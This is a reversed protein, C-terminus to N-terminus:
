NGMKGAPLATVRPKELLNALAHTDKTWLKLTWGEEYYLWMSRASEMRQSLGIAVTGFYAYFMSHIQVGFLACCCFIANIRM